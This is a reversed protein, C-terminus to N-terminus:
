FLWLTFITKIYRQIRSTSYEVDCFCFMQQKLRISANFYDANMKLDASLRITKNLIEM